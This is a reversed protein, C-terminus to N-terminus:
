QKQAGEQKQKALLESFYPPLYPAADEWGGERVRGLRRPLEFGFPTFDYQPPEGEKGARAYVNIMEGRKKLNVANAAAEYLSGDPAALQMGHLGFSNCGSSVSLVVLTQHELTWLPAAADAAKLSENLTVVDVVSLNRRETVAGGADKLVARYQVDGALGRTFDPLGVRAAQPLTGAQSLQPILACMGVAALIAMSSSMRSRM